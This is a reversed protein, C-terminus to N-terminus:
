GSPELRHIKVPAKTGLMCLQLYPLYKRKSKGFPRYYALQNDTGAEAPVFEDAVNTSYLVHSWTFCPFLSEIARWSYRFYDDPYPHYRWVWPVCIYLTGAPRVLLELNQAFVWPKPTHELVSCCIVLAFHSIPLEGTGQTLDVVRDVGEGDQMDIGVYPQGVYLDRFTSTNGYNKAGVELVPGDVSPVHRRLYIKQNVDGM